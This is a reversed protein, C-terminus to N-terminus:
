PVKDSDYNADIEVALEELERVKAQLFFWYVDADTPTWEVLGGNLRSEIRGLAFDVEATTEGVSDGYAVTLEREDIMERFRKVAARISDIGFLAFPISSADRLGETIKEIGYGLTSPLSNRLPQGRFKRRHELEDAVLREAAKHLLKGMVSTQQEAAARVSVNRFESQQGKVDVRMQFGDPSLTIRSIAASSGDRRGTPHGIADNRVERIAKLEEPLEWSLKLCEALTKAADQQVYLVQLIGYVVLYSWGDSKANKMPQDLFARVALQTDGIADMASCLRFWQQRNGHVLESRRRASNVIDRIRREAAEVPDDVMAPQM